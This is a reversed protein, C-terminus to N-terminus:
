RFRIERHQFLLALHCQGYVALPPRNKKIGAAARHDAGGTHGTVAGDRRKGLIRRAGFGIGQAKRITGHQYLLGRVGDFVTGGSLIFGYDGGNFIGQPM